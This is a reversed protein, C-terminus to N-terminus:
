KVRSYMAVAESLEDLLVVAVVMMTNNSAVDYHGYMWTSSGNQGKLADWAASGPIPNSGQDTVVHVM